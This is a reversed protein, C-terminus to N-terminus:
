AVRIKMARVAGDSAQVKVQKYERKAAPRSLTHGGIQANPFFGVTVLWFANDDSIEVEEIRPDHVNESGVLDIVYEMAIKAADKVTVMIRVGDYLTRDVLNYSLHIKLDQNFDGFM